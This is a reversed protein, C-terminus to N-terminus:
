DCSRCRRYGRSEGVCGRLSPLVGAALERNSPRVWEVVEERSEERWRGVSGDWGWRRLRRERGFCVETLGDGAMEASGTIHSERYTVPGRGEGEGGGEGGGEGERETTSSSSTDRGM